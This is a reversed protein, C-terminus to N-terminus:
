TFTWPRVSNAYDILRIREAHNPTMAALDRYAQEAGKRLPIEQAPIGAILVDKQPGNALVTALAEDLVTLVVLQRDHADVAVHDISSLANALSDLGGGGAALLRARAMRAAVYAGSTPGILDLAALAAPVDHRATAIRALGFAAPATYNADVTACLRYLSEAVAPEAGQECALALALKPALEGPVQGLVTNFAAVAGAVDTGILGILGSMWVARWEWPDTSLIQDVQKGAMGLQGADIAARARALRVLVNEALEKPVTDLAALRQTGDAISVTSLWATAPDVPDLLLPPLEDWELTEGAATPPGFLSSPAAHSVAGGVASVAVTERLVGLLQDRLEDVSQFRDDPSSATAKALVRYLSDHQQFL